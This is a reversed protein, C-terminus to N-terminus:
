CLRKLSFNLYRRLRDATCCDHLFRLLVWNPEVEKNGVIGTTKNGIRIGLTDFGALAHVKVPYRPRDIPIDDEGYEGDSWYYALDAHFIHWFWGLKELVTGM